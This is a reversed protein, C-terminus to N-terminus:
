FDIGEIEKDYVKIIGDKQTAVILNFIMDKQEKSLIIQRIKGDTFKSLLVTEKIDNTSKIRKRKNTIQKNM